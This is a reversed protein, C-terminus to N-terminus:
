WTALSFHTHIEENKVMKRLKTRKKRGWWILSWLARIFWGQFFCGPIKRWLLQYKMKMWQPLPSRVRRFNVVVSFYLLRPPICVLLSLSYRYICALWYIERYTQLIGNCNISTVSYSIVIHRWSMIWDVIRSLLYTASFANVKAHRCYQIVLHNEFVM